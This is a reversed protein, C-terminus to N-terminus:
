FNVYNRPNVANSHSPTWSGIYFEFHLHQGFSEGTNGMYGIIQGKKVVQGTGVQRSRMHAYVTTYIKGNVSHTIFVANGYSSSLYSRAVVGDAAAVIPVTGGKAIDIGYHFGNDFSRYGFESSIYGQAPRTFTGPSVPPIGSTSGGGSNINGGGGNSNQQQRALEAAKRKEEAIRNKELQIAKDISSKQASLIEQEEELSLKDHELKKKQKGLQKMINNKRSKQQNLEAKMSQLKSQMEQLEHLKKEVDSQKKELEEQDRKQEEIIQKDAHVLTTVASVRDILDAISDSGLIVDLFNVSGGGNTQMTRARQDLIKNREEIRKKIAAIEKKLEEVDNKAEDIQKQKEQIKEDTDAITINLKALEGELTQQKGQIVNIKEKKQQISSDVTSKKNEVEKQQNQLDSLKSAFAESQYVFLSGFGLVTALSVSLLSRKKLRLGGEFIEIYIYLLRSLLM